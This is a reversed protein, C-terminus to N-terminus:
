GESAKEIGEALAKEYAAQGAGIGSDWGRQMYPNAPVATGDPAVHGYEVLHDYHSPQKIEKDPHPQEGKGIREGDQAIYAADAGVIGNARPGSSTVKKTQARRLDGAEVPVEDKVARLLPTTGVNVARRNVANARKGLEALQKRLKDAGTLKLRNSPV